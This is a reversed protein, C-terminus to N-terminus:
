IFNKLHNNECKFSNDEKLKLRLLSGGRMLKGPRFRSDLGSVIFGPVDHDIFQSVSFLGSGCEWYRRNKLFIPWHSM